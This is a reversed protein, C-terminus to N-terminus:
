RPVLTGELETVRTAQPDSLWSLALFHGLDASFHSNACLSLAQLSSPQSTGHQFREKTLLQELFALAKSKYSSSRSLKIQKRPFQTQKGLDAPRAAVGRMSSSVRTGQQGSAM